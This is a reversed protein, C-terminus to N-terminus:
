KMLMDNVVEMCIDPLKRDADMCDKITLVAERIKLPLEDSPANEGPWSADRTKQDPWRSYAVWLGDATRHLCSGVAGRHSVFYQAVIQWANQYDMERGPKIYGRYIVAFDSKIKEKAQKSITKKFLAHKIAEINEEIPHAHTDIEIDYAVNEHVKFYQGRAGGLLRDGRSRERQELIELPTTVGVYLVHYNKLAEKWEEVEIAGFAVDDIILHYGQSALLLAIDKLSRTIKKAFPGSRIHYTPHGEPDAAPEWSFGLPAPGGEWDNMKEPMFGILKDIGIHLYPESFANQLGKALTTKGSSSPGNLYIISSMQTEEASYSIV